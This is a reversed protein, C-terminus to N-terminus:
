LESLAELPGTSDGLREVRVGAKSLLTVLLNMMPTYDPYTLHRGGKLQGVGGGLVLTPLNTHSHLNGDAIGGGYLLIVHDLLNGDGDPTLRLTQVFDSLMQVHFTNIKTLKALTDPDDRHHSMAHHPEPVGISPFTRGSLERGLQFTIIRTIDAQYALVQLDFMVRVHEDFHIPSTM